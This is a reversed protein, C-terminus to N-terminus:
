TKGERPPPALASREQPTLLSLARRLHGSREQELVGGEAGPDAATEDRPLQRVRALARSRALSMIWGVVPGDGPQYARSLHWIDHFVDITVEEAVERRRAIQIALTFVIRHMCEFMCYLAHADGDAISRILDVWDDEGIARASTNRDLLEGLTAAAAAEDLPLIASM